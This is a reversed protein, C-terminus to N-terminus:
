QLPREEQHFPLFKDQLMEHFAALASNPTIGALCDKPCGYDWCGAEPCAARLEKFWPMRLHVVWPDTVGFFGLTPTGVLAALHLPGTDNGVAATCNKAVAAALPSPTQGVLNMVAESQLKDSIERAMTAEGEGHGILVIGWGEEILAELFSIWHPVPWMKQPTSAGIIAFLRKPPLNGMLFDAQKLDEETAFIAPASCGFFDVKLMDLYKWHTATYAFQLLPNYGLRMPIGSFLALLAVSGVRHRSVLWEFRNRIRFLVKFFDWPRKKIDWVLVEDIYPQKKLIEAFEPSVLLTQHTNPFRKKFAFASAALQLTDGFASFRIWLVRDGDRPRVISM